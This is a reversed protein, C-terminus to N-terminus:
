KTPCHVFVVKDVVVIVVLWDKEKPNYKNVWSEIFFRGQTEKICQHPKNDEDFFTFSPTKWDLVHHKVLFNIVYESIYDHKETSKIIKDKMFHFDGTYNFTNTKYM